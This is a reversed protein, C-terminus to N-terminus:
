LRLLCSLYKERLNEYTKDGAEILRSEGFDIDRM